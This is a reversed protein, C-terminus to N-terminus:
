LPDEMANTSLSIPRTVQLLNLLSNVSEAPAHELRQRIVSLTDDHKVHNVIDQCLKNFPLLVCKKETSLGFYNQSEIINYKHQIEESLSIGKPVILKSSVSNDAQLLLKRIIEDSLATEQFLQSLSKTLVTLKKEFLEKEINGWVNFFDILYSFALQLGANFGETCQKDYAAWASNEARSILSKCYQRTCETAIARRGAHSYRGMKIVVNDIRAHNSPSINRM